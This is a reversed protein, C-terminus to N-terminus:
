KRTKKKTKSKKQCKKETKKSISEEARAALWSKVSWYPTMLKEKHNLVVCPYIPATTLSFFRKAYGSNTQISGCVIGIRQNGGEMFQSLGPEHFDGQAAIDRDNAEMRLYREPAHTKNYMSKGRFFHSVAWKYVADNVQIDLHGIGNHYITHRKFIEAYSSYGAAAEQRMVSHNDWTSAIVKHKIEKLWSDLFYLQYKPPLADDKVELVNRMKIAMQLLDGVFIVYLDETHLIEDTFTKFLEYNTAWSGLQLDGIVVVCIPRDTKIKWTARDQSGSAREFIKQMAQVPELAERWDFESMKKDTTIKDTKYQELDRYTKIADYVFSQLSSMCKENLNHKKVIIRAISAGKLNTSRLELIENLYDAYKGQHFDIFAM